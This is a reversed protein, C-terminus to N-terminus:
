GPKTLTFNVTSVTVGALPRVSALAAYYLTQKVGERFLPQPYPRAELTGGAAEVAESLRPVVLVDEAVGDLEARRNVRRHARRYLWRPSSPEYLLAARGGPRLVRLIEAVTESYDGARGFHHFAAFTFVRDFQGDAFPMARCDFAWKEDIAVSLMQEYHHAFGLADPALDAAVVYADPHWRKVLASAWAQGSGLELVRHGPRVDILPEVERFTKIFNSKHLLDDFLERGDSEVRGEATRRYADIEGADAADLRSRDLHCRVGAVDTPEVHPLLHPADPLDATM